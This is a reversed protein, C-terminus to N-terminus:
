LDCMKKNQEEWKQRKEELTYCRKKDLSKKMVTELIEDIKKILGKQWAANRGGKTNNGM